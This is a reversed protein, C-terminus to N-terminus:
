TLSSASGWIQQPSQASTLSLTWGIANLACSMWICSHSIGTILQAYTSRSHQHWQPTWLCFIYWSHIYVPWLRGWRNYKGQLFAAARRCERCGILSATPPHLYAESNGDLAEAETQLARSTLETLTELCSPRGHLWFTPPSTWDVYRSWIKSPFEYYYLFKYLFLICTSYSYIFVPIVHHCVVKKSIYIYTYTTSPIPHMCVYIYFECM